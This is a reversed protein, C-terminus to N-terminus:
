TARGAVRWGAALLLAVPYWDPIEGITAHALRVEPGSAGDRKSFVTYLDGDREIRDGVNMAACIATPTGLPIARSEPTTAQSVYPM